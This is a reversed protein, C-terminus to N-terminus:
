TPELFLLTSEEFPNQYWLTPTEYLVQIVTGPVDTGVLLWEMSLAYAQRCRHATAEVPVTVFFGTIATAVLGLGLGLSQLGLTDSAALHLASAMATAAIKTASLAHFIVAYQRALADFRMAAPAAITAFAEYPVGRTPRARESTPSRRAVTREPLSCRTTPHPLGAFEIAHIKLLLSAPPTEGTLTHKAISAGLLKCEAELKRFPFLAGIGVAVTAAAGAFPKLWGAGQDGLSATHLLTVFAVTSATLADLAIACAFFIREYVEFARLWCRLQDAYRSRAPM